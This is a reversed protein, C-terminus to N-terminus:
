ELCARVVVALARRAIMPVQALMCAWLQYVVKGVSVGVMGQEAFTFACRRHTAHLNSFFFVQRIGMEQQACM